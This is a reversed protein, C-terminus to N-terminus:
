VGLWERFRSKLEPDNSALLCEIVYKYIHEHRDKGVVYIDSSDDTSAKSHAADLNQNIGINFSNPTVSNTTSASGWVFSCYYQGDAYRINYVKSVKRSLSMKRTFLMSLLAGILLWIM